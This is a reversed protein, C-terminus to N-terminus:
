GRASRRGASWDFVQAFGDVMRDMSYEELVRQTAGHSLRRRLMTDTLIRGCQGVMDQLDGDRYELGNVDAILAEIEPNQARRNDSTVAPLGYGFAHLLSLGVNTPYCFLSASLMWPALKSEEYIAGAFIVRAEIGLSRALAVLRARDSGDGILVTKLDPHASCLAATAHLLLDIRNNPELRSIFLITSASDIAHMRRFEALAEPRISWYRKADQIPAQDLANQAVFVRDRSFRATEILRTAVSRTYLLVADAIRGCVNRAGDTLAHPRQSYGHGWLVIPVGRARALAVSPVLSLYHMDWPAIVVDYEGQAAASVQASQVRLGAVWRRVPAFVVRFSNGTHFAALSGESGGAFVTLEIGPLRGLREFLPLRYSPILPQCIAVRM